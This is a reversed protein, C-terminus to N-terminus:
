SKGQLLAETFRATSGPQVGKAKAEGLVDGLLAWCGSMATEHAKDEHTRCATAFERVLDFATAGGVGGAAAQNAQQM